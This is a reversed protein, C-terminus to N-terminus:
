ISLTFKRWKTHISSRKKKKEKKKQNSHLVCKLLANTLHNKLKTQAFHLLTFDDM